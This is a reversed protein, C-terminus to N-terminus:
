AGDMARRYLEVYREALTDMSWARAHERAEDKAEPASRGTGAAADVLAKRLTEALAHADAPPVLEARGGAAQRYGDIDSAVVVCGAAMGELLVLGFSEGYLSPACQVDAGALRAAMEEDSLAGLWEVRDSPPARRHLAETDPGEGIVWLVAPEEVMTFADLLVALGKRQEHRGVFAVAPRGLPDRVPPASEFRAMEIGNFLVEFPGGGAQLGTQRAAESVAVRIQMRRGLLSALPRLPALARSTGARHYTAVMPAPPPRLVLGYAILPALPEHVHVVDFGGARIFREARLPALPSLAVPAVSGNTPVGTPHGVVYHDGVLAGLAPDPDAPGVVVVEHGLRRLSRALGVAQGQVGGHRNLAYPSVMAIRM